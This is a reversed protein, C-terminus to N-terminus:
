AALPGAPPSMEPEPSAVLAPAPTGVNDPRLACFQRTVAPVSAAEPPAKDPLTSTPAAPAPPKDLVPAPM